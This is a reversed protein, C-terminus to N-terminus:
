FAKSQRSSRGGQGSSNGTGFKADIMAKKMKDLETDSYLHPKGTSPQGWVAYNEGGEILTPTM